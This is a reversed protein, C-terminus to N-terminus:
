SKGWLEALRADRGCGFRYTKYRVPNKKYFDQHYEEAPYFQALPTIQTVIPAKITGSREIKRKSAEALQKQAEGHFFIAPRYQRGRDCFQRDSTTPDINRWFVDLLREYSIKAPDYAVQVVEAHGTVGASVQEYTPNREAGGAYGSTTSVVGPLVDFPPEMCWFCGGAFTAQELRPKAAATQAPLCSAFLLVAVPVLVSRLFRM